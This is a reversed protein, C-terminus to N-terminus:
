ESKLDGSTSICQVYVLKIWQDVSLKLVRDSGSVSNKLPTCYDTKPFYRRGVYISGQSKTLFPSYKWHMITIWNCQGCNVNELAIRMWPDFDASKHLRSSWDIFEFNQNELHMLVSTQESDEDNFLVTFTSIFFVYMLGWLWVVLKHSASWSSFVPGISPSNMLSDHFHNRSQIARPFYYPASHFCTLSYLKAYTLAQVTFTHRSSAVLKNASSVMFYTLGNGLLHSNSVQFSISSKYPSLNNLFRENWKQAWSCPITSFCIKWPADICVM